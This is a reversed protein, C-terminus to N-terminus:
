PRTADTGSPSSGLYWENMWEAWIYTFIYVSNPSSVKQFYVVQLDFFFIPINLDINLPCM